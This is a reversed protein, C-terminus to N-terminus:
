SLRDDLLENNADKQNTISSELIMNNYAKKWFFENHPNYKRMYCWNAM